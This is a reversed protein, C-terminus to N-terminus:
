MHLWPEEEPVRAADPSAIPVGEAHGDRFVLTIQGISPRSTVPPHRLPWSAYFCTRHFRHWSKTMWCGDDTHTQRDRNHTKNPTTQRECASLILEVIAILAVFSASPCSCIANCATHEERCVFKRQQPYVCDTHPRSSLLALLTLERLSIVARQWQTHESESAKKSSPAKVQTGRPAPGAKASASRYSREHSDCISWTSPIFVPSGRDEGKGMLDLARERPESARGATEEGRLSPEVSRRDEESSSTSSSQLAALM